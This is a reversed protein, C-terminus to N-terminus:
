FDVMARLAYRVRETDAPLTHLDNVSVKEHEPAIAHMSYRAWAILRPKNVPIKGRHIGYNDEIFAQGAQGKLSIIYQSFQKLYLGDNGYGDNPLNFLDVDGSGTQLSTVGQKKFKDPCHSFKIYEHVGNEDDTDTLYVFLTCFRVHSKDRHFSQGFPSNEKQPFSWFVNISHLTAPAGLYSEVIQLVDNSSFYKILHPAQIVSGFPYSGFHFQDADGSALRGVGDDEVHNHYIVNFCPLMKFYALIDSVCEKELIKDLRVVGEERLTNALRLVNEKLEEEHFFGNISSAIVSSIHRRAEPSLRRIDEHNWSLVDKSFKEAVQSDKLYFDQKGM